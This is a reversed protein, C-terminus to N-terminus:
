LIQYCESVRRRNKSSATAALPDLEITAKKSALAAKDARIKERLRHLENLRRQNRKRRASV